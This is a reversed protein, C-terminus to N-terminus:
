EGNQKTPKDDELPPLENLLNFLQVGYKTPIEGIIRSLEDQKEPSIIISKKM